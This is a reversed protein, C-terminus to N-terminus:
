SSRLSNVGERCLRNLSLFGKLTYRCIISHEGFKIGDTVPLLLSLASRATNLASYGLGSQLLFTLFEIAEDVSANFINLGRESCYKEWKNLYTQYQKLTGERWSALIVKTTDSLTHQNLTERILSM